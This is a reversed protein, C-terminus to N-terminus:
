RRVLRVPWLPSGVAAFWTVNERVVDFAVADVRADSPLPLRWRLTCRQGPALTRPLPARPDILGDIPAGAGDLWRVGVHVDALWTAAGDNRVELEVDVATAAASLTLASPGAWAARYRPSSSTEPKTAAEVDAAVAVAADGGWSAVDVGLAGKLAGQWRAILAQRGAPERVLAALDSILTRGDADAVRLLHLVRNNRMDERDSFVVDLRDPGAADHVPADVLLTALVPSGASTEVSIAWPRLAGQVARGDLWRGAADGLGLSTLLTPMVDIHSVLRDDVGAALGPLLFLLPTRLQIDCLEGDHAFLGHELMAEGHDGTVVVGVSGPAAAEAAALVRGFLADVAFLASNYRNRLAQVSAGGLGGTRLADANVVPAFRPATGDPWAYPYHTADFFVFIARKGPRALAATAVAAAAADLAPRSQAGAAVGDRADFFRETLAGAGGAGDISGVSGIGFVRKGVDYYDLGAGSAVEIAYGADRLMRLPAAGGPEDGHRLRHWWLPSRGFFLSYWSPHTANAGAFARTMRHSRAALAALNPTVEVDIADARFSEVVVFILKDPANAALDSPKALAGTAPPRRPSPVGDPLTLAPPEVDAALAGLYNRAPGYVRGLASLLAGHSDLVLVLSFALVVLATAAKSWPPPSVLLQWRWCALVALLGLFLPLLLVAVVPVLGIGSADIAQGVGVLGEAAGVEIMTALGKNAVALAYLDIGLLSVLAVQAGVLWVPASKIRRALLQGFQHLAAVLLVASCGCVVVGAASGLGVSQALRLAAFLVTSWAATLIAIVLLTRLTPRPPATPAPAGPKQALTAPPLCWRKTKM